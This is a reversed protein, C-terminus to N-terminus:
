VCLPALEHDVWGKERLKDVLAHLTRQRRTVRAVRSRVPLVVYIGDQLRRMMLVDWFSSCMSMGTLSDSTFTTNLMPAKANSPSRGAEIKWMCSMLFSMAPQLAVESIMATNWVFAPCTVRCSVAYLASRLM